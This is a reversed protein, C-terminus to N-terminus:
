QNTAFPALNEFFYSIGQEAISPSQVLGAGTWIVEMSKLDIIFVHEREPFVKRLKEDNPGAVNFTLVSLDSWLKLENLTPDVGVGSGEITLELIDGGNKAIDEAQQALDEAGFRCTQCWISSTHILLYNKETNRLDQFSFVQPSKTEALSNGTDAVRLGWLELNELRDGVQPTNTGYPGEPYPSVPTALSDSPAGEVRQAPAANEYSRYPAYEKSGCGTTLCFAIVLGCPNLLSRGNVTKQRVGSDVEAPTAGFQTKM